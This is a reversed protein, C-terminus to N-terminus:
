VRERATRIRRERAPLDCNEDVPHEPMAMGRFELRASAPFIPISLNGSISLAIIADSLLKTIQSPQHQAEPLKVELVVGVGAHVTYPGGQGRLAV